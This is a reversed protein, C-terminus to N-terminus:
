AEVQQSAALEAADRAKALFVYASQLLAFVQGYTATQGAIPELTSPDVIPFETGANALTFTERVSGTERVMSAGESPIIADQEFFEVTPSGGLNNNVLICRCRRYAVGTIATENYNPM